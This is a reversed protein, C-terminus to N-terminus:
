QMNDSQFTIPITFDTDITEGNIIGPFWRPSNNIATTIAKTIDEHPSREINLDKIHGEKDVVLKVLITTKPLGLQLVSRPYKISKTLYAVYLDPSRGMFAASLTDGFPIVTELTADVYRKKGRIAPQWKGSEEVLKIAPQILAPDDSTLVKIDRVEGHKTVVFSLSVRGKTEADDPLRAEKIIYEEFSDYRDSTLKPLTDFIETQKAYYRDLWQATTPIAPLLTLLLLAIRKM